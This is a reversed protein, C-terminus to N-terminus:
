KKMCNSTSNEKMDKDMMQTPSFFKIITLNCIKKFCALIIRESIPSWEMLSRPAEKNMLISVGSRHEIDEGVGSFILFNGNQTKIESNEKWRTESLGMIDLNYSTMEKEVPKLKGCERLTRVNRFRKENEM